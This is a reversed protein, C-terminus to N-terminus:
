MCQENQKSYMDKTVALSRELGVFERCYDFRFTNMGIRTVSDFRNAPSIEREDLKVIGNSHHMMFDTIGAYQSVIYSMMKKTNACEIELTRKDDDSISTFMEKRYVDIMKRDLVNMSNYLVDFADEMLSFQKNWDERGETKIGEVIIKITADVVKSSNQDSLLM